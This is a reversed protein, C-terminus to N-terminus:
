SVDLADRWHRPRNGGCPPPIRSRHVAQRGCLRAHLSPPTTGFSADRWIWEVTLEGFNSAGIQGLPTSRTHGADGGIYHWEGPETGPRDNVHQASGPVAAALLVSVAATAVLLGAGTGELSKQWTVGGAEAMECRSVRRPESKYNM